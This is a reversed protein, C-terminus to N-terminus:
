IGSKSTNKSTPTLIKSFFNIAKRIVLLKILPNINVAGVPM